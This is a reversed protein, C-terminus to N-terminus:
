RMKVIGKYNLVAQDEPAATALNTKYFVTFSIFVFAPTAGSKKFCRIYFNTISSTPTTLQELDGNNNFMLRSYSVNNVSDFEYEESFIQFYQSPANRKSFYFTEGGISTHENDPEITDFCVEVNFESDQYIKDGNNRIYSKIFNLAYDGQQKAETLRYIKSQQKAVTFLVSFMIPLMIGVIALVVVVEIM